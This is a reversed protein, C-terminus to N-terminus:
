RVGITPTTKAAANRPSFTVPSSIRPPAAMKAPTATAVSPTLLTPVQGGHGVRSFDAEAFPAHHLQAESDKDARHKGTCQCLIHQLQRELARCLHPRRIKGPALDNIRTRKRRLKLDPPPCVGRFARKVPSEAIEVRQIVESDPLLGAFRSNGPPRLFPRPLDAASPM